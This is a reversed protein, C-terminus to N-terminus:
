AARKSLATWGCIYARWDISWSMGHNWSWVLHRNKTGRLSWSYHTRERRGASIM